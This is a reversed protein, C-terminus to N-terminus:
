LGGLRGREHERTRGPLEGGSAGLPRPRGPLPRLEFQNRVEDVFVPILPHHRRHAGHGQWGIVRDHHTRRVVNGRVACARARPSGPETM